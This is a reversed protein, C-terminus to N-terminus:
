YKKRNNKNKNNNIANQTTEKLECKRQIPYNFRYQKCKTIGEDSFLNNSSYNNKTPVFTAYIQEKM